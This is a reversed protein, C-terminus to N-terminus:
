NFFKGTVVEKLVDEHNVDAIFTIGGGSSPVTVAPLGCLRSLAANGFETGAPVIIADYKEFDLSEKILRRIRMAKDYYREYYGQSLVMSGVLAALKVDTGFAETRSKTYLEHLGEYGDARHGFKIGDYRSINNSLEGCCLIQMVQAYVEFYKLEFEVTEHDFNPILFESNPISSFVNVPVGIRLRSNSPKGEDSDHTAFQSNHIQRLDAPFMAGDNPDYGAIISLARFGEQPTKCVIGIQDMSQVAPILGYRSVSGYTPHIYCVGHAAACESIAGTYDNCLAFAAVGNAVASVAGSMFGSNPFSSGSNEDTGGVFYKVQSTDAFLGAAGFEEMKTKGLIEVGAAELRVVVEASLPSVFNELAKSGATVPRGKHM